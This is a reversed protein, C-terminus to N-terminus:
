WWIVNLALCALALVSSLLWLTGSIRPITPSSIPIKALEDIQRGRPGACILATLIFSLIASRFDTNLASGVRMWHHRAAIQFLGCALMGCTVGGVASATSGRRTLVGVVLIGFFPVLSMSFIILTFDSLGEFAFTAIAGAVSLVVCVVYAWRGVAVSSEQTASSQISIRYIEQTWIASFAGVNSAYGNVLGAVLAAIGLSYLKPSYLQAMLLPATTDLAGATGHQLRGSMWVVPAVVIMSFLLKGFGALIPARRAGELTRASLARQMLVFDTCWYSFSIVFGLGLIVGILDVSAKGSVLPTAQWVHWRQGILEAANSRRDRSLYLLPGLGALMVCFQFIENYVTARFGGRLLYVLVVGAFTCTSMALSWDAAIHMVEAVGYLCLGAFLTTSALVIWSQLARVPAGFRLGLYEPVSRVGSKIYIPILVLGTVIVAPIAGIWYFHFAQAGYRSAIGSLGIIELAGCNCTLFSVAAVWGPMSGTANLFQNSDSQRRRFVEGVVLSCILFFVIVPVHRLQNSHASLAESSGILM